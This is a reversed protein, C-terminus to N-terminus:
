TLPETGVLGLMYSNALPKEVVKEVRLWRGAFDGATVEILHDAEVATEDTMLGKMEVVSEKGFIEQAQESTLMKLKMKVDSGLLQPTDIYSNDPQKTPVIAHIDVVSGLQEVADEVLPGAIAKLEAASPFVSTSM